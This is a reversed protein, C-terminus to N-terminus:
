ELRTCAAMAERSTAVVSRALSLLGAVAPDAVSYYCFRGERRAQLYGCEALCALHSSVRGQSLGVHTVCDSVSREGELLLELLALRTPDSLGRFFRALVVHSQRNAPLIASGSSGSVGAPASSGASGPVGSASALTASPAFAAAQGASSM